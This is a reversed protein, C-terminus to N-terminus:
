PKGRRERERRLDDSIRGGLTSRLPRGTRWSLEVNYLQRRHRRIWRREAEVAERFGYEGPQEERGPVVELTRLEPRLGASLLEGLWGYVPFESGNRLHRRATRLHERLRRSPDTSAGVYRVRGDRPDVLAYITVAKWWWTEVKGPYSTV